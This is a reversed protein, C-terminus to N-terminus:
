SRRTNNSHEFWQARRLRHGSKRSIAEGLNEDRYLLSVLFGPLKPTFAWTQLITKKKKGEKTVKPM